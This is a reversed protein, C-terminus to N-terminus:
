QKRRNGQLITNTQANFVDMFSLAGSAIADNSTPTGKPRIQSFDYGIGGGRQHTRAGLTVKAFIDELSDQIEPAVFCNNLTLAKGIGSNSMTRGAPFFLGNIMVEKFKTIDEETKGCFQAVRLINDELTEGNKQYRDKWIDELVENIFEM